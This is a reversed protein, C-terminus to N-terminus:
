RGELGFLLDSDAFVKRLVICKTKLGSREGFGSSVSVLKALNAPSGQPRVM